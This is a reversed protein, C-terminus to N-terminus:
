IKFINEFEKQFYKYETYLGVLHDYLRKLNDVKDNGYLYKKLLLELLVFPVKENSIKDILNSCQAEDYAEFNCNSVESIDNVIKNDPFYIVNNDINSCEECQCSFGRNTLIFNYRSVPDLLLYKQPIYSITIEEGKEIPKVAKVYIKPRIKGKHEYPLIWYICNPDCSHNIKSATDFIANGLTESLILTKISFNNAMYIKYCRQWESDCIKGELESPMKARKCGKAEALGSVNVNFLRWILKDSPSLKKCNTKHNSLKKCQKDCFKQGCTCQIFQKKNNSYHNPDLISLCNECVDHSVSYLESIDTFVIDDKAISKNSFIGEGKSTQKINLM